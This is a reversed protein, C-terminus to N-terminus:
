HCLAVALLLEAHGRESEVLWDALKPLRRERYALDLPLLICVRPPRHRARRRHPGVLDLDVQGGVRVTLPELLTRDHVLHLVLRNHQAVQETDDALFLLHLEVRGFVDESSGRALTCLRDALLEVHESRELREVQGLAALGGEDDRRAGILVRRLWLRRRVHALRRPGEALVLNRDLGRAVHAVEDEGVLRGRAVLLEVDDLDVLAAHSLVAHQTDVALAEVVLSAGLIVGLRRREAVAQELRDPQSLARRAGLVGLEVHAVQERHLQQRLRRAAVGELTALLEAADKLVGLVRGLLLLVVVLGHRRVVGGLDDRLEVVQHVHLHLLRAAGVRRRHRGREVVLGRPAVHDGLRIQAEPARIKVSSVCM